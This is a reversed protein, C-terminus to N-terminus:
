VMVPSWLHEVGEVTGDLERWRTPVLRTPIQWKEKERVCEDATGVFLTNDSASRLEGCLVEILRGEGCNRGLLQAGHNLHVAEM